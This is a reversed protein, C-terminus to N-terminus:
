HRDGTTIDIAQLRQQRVTHFQCCWALREGAVQWIDTQATWDARGDRIPNSCGDCDSSASRRNCKALRLHLEDVPIRVPMIQQSSHNRRSNISSIGQADSNNCHPLYQTFRLKPESDAQCISRYGYGAEASVSVRLRSQCEMISRRLLVFAATSSKLRRSSVEPAASEPCAVHDRVRREAVPLSSCLAV